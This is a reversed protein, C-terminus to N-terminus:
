NWLPVILVSGPKLSSPFAVMCKLEMFTRNFRIHINISYGPVCM